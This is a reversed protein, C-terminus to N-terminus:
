VAETTLPGERVDADPRNQQFVGIEAGVLVDPGWLPICILSVHPVWASHSIYWCSAEPRAVRSFKAAGRGLEVVLPFYNLYEDCFQIIRIM